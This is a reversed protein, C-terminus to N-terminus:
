KEIIIFNGTKKVLQPKDNFLSLAKNVYELYKSTKENRQYCDKSTQRGIGSKYGEYVQIIIRGNEHLMGYMLSIMGDIMQLDNIVNLVNCCFISDFGYKTGYSLVTINNESPQNYPDLPFYHAGYQEVHEKIHDIYKGCGYDLVDGYAVYKKFATPLKDRNISTGASTITQAM